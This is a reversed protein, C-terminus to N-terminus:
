VVSTAHRTDLYMFELQVTRALASRGITLYIPKRSSFKTAIIASSILKRVPNKMCGKSM